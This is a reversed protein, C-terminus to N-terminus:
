QSYKEEIKILRNTIIGNIELNIIFLVISAVWGALGTIIVIKTMTLLNNGIRIFPLIEFIVSSLIISAVTTEFIRRLQEPIPTHQFPERSEENIERDRDNYVKNFVARITQIVIFIAIYGVIGDLEMTKDINIARNISYVYSLILILLIGISELIDLVIFAINGLKNAWVIKKNRRKDEANEEETLKNEM